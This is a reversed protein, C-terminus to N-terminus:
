VPNTEHYDGEAALATEAEERTLFVTKGFDAATVYWAVFEGNYYLRFQTGTSAYLSISEVSCEFIALREEDSDMGPVNIPSTIAWVTDGVKCPFVAIRGENEAKLLEQLCAVDHEKIFGALEAAECNSCQTKMKDGEPKRRYAFWTKGCFACDILGGGEVQLVDLDPDYGALIVWCGVQKEQAHIIWIPEGDMERLEDVTLPENKEAEALTGIRHIAEAPSHGDWQPACDVEQVHFIDWYPNIDYHYTAQGDPTDVGVIFMGDYMTGDYHKKSKWARGPHQNCIVSFLVARHHYLENFTHYGDSIEGPNKEAEAQACLASIAMRAADRTQEYNCGAWASLIEIAEKTNM